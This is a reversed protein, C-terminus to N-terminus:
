KSDRRKAARDALDACLRNMIPASETLEEPHWQVGIWLGDRSELGEVIGDDAEATVILKDGLSRVSQHHISNVGVRNQGLIRALHTEEKMSVQHFLHDRRGRQCHLYVEGPAQAHIDQYLAGGSYVAMIQMGKCIGLCPIGREEALRLAELLFKDHWPRIEGLQRHPNEGYLAPDVDEGGPVLLGDCLAIMTKLKEFDSCVPLILPVGGNKEVAAVYAANVYQREIEGFMSTHQWLTNGLIGIIPKNM